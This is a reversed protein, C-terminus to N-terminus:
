DHHNVLQTHILGDYHGDVGTDYGLIRDNYILTTDEFWLPVYPLDQLLVQQIERYTAAREEFDATHEAHEILEDVVTSEYRGRNAGVPPVSESHFAYRFIDPQKLGVWSLSYMQFRGTKIDGYFTGWDYSQINLDIGVKSLQNQMATAVRLRFHDSSTKYSIELPANENYGMKSLIARAKDPDYPISALQSNGAWHDPTFLGDALRAQDGFMYKILSRRDIAHAIASRLEVSALARDTVNFGLYTFTTGPRYAVHIGSREDLWRVLEPTMSGQMIDIERHLMKLARVTADEITLFEILQDDDVRRLLLRSELHADVVAFQGSGVLLPLSLESHELVKAPMIGIVLLGPFLPDPRRLKFDVVLTSPANLSDINELSGRHPSATAADLVSRYTALVDQSTLPQGDHFVQGENLHFRYDLPSRQEWTALSPIPRHSDDFDVLAQYVLRVIRYSTADTAFRPDLTVPARALGFRITHSAKEACGGILFFSCVILSVRIRMAWGTRSNLQTLM